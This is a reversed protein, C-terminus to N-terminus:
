SSKSNNQFIAFLELNGLTKERRIESSKNAHHKQLVRAILLNINAKM